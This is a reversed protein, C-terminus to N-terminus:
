KECSYGDKRYQEVLKDFTENSDEEKTNGTTSCMDGDCKLESENTNVIVKDSEERITVTITKNDKSLTCTIERNEKECGVMFVMFFLLVVLLLKKM